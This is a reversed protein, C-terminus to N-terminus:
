ITSHLVKKEAQGLRGDTPPQGSKGIEMETLSLLIEETPTENSLYFCDYVLLVM